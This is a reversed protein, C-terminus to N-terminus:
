AALATTTQWTKDEESNGIIGVAALWREYNAEYTRASLVHERTTKAWNKYSALNDLVEELAEGWLAASDVVTAHQRWGGYTVGSAIAPVGAAGYQLMKLDSKSENFPCPSTPALAVDFSKVLARYNGLDGTPVFPGILLQESQRLRPFLHALEPMGLLVLRARPRAAIVPEIFPAIDRFDDWHNYIGWWGIWVEGTDKGAPEVDTWSSALVQNPLLMYDGRLRHPEGGALQRGLTETSVTLVDALRIARKFHWTRETIRGAGREHWAGYAGISPPVLLLNDDVDVVVRLGAERAALILYGHQWNDPRSLVIADFEDLHDVLAPNTGSEVQIEIHGAEALLRYPTLARYFESVGRDDCIVLVRM